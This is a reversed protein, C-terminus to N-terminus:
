LDLDLRNRGADLVVQTHGTRQAGLTVGGGADATMSGVWSIEVPGPSLGTVRYRGDPGATARVERDPSVVTVQITFEDAGDFSGVLSAPRSATIGEVAVSQDSSRATTDDGDDVLQLAVLAGVLAVGVVVAILLRERGARPAM